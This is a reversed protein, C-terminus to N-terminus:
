QSQPLDSRLTPMTIRLEGRQKQIELAAGAHEAATGCPWPMSQLLAEDSVTKM